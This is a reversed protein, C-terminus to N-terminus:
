WYVFVGVGGVEFFSVECGKRWSDGRTNAGMQTATPM